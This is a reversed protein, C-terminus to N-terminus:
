QDHHPGPGDGQGQGFRRYPIPPHTPSNATSDQKISSFCHTPLLTPPHTPPHTPFAKGKTAMVGAMEDGEEPNSIVVRVNNPALRLLADNMPPKDPDVEPPGWRNRGGGGGGSPRPPGPRFPPRSGGGAPRPPGGGAPRPPGSPPPRASDLRTLSSSPPSPSSLFAHTQPKLTPPPILHTPPHTPQSPPPAPIHKGPHSSSNAPGVLLRRAARKQQQQQQRAHSSLQIHVHHIPSHLLRHLPIYGLRLMLTGIFHALRSAHTALCPLPLTLVSQARALFLLPGQALWLVVGQTSSSSNSCGPWRAYAATSTSTLNRTSSPSSPGAPMSMPPHPFLCLIPCVCLCADQPSAGFGKARPGEIVVAVCPLLGAAGGLWPNEGTRECESPGTAPPWGHASCWVRMLPPRLREEMCVSKGRGGWGEGGCLAGEAGEHGGGVHGGAGAGRGGALEVGVGSLVRRGARRRGGLDDEEDVGVLLFDPEHLLELVVGVDGLDHRLDLGRVGHVDRKGGM